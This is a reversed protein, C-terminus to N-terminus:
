ILQSKPLAFCLGSKTLCTRCFMLFSPKLAAQVEIFPPKKNANNEPIAMLIKDKAFNIFHNNCLSGIKNHDKKKPNTKALIKYMAFCILPQDGFIM